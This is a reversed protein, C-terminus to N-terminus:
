RPLGNAGWHTVNREMGNWEFNAGVRIFGFGLGGCYWGRENTGLDARCGM